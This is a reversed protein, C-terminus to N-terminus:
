LALPLSGRSIPLLLPIVMEEASDWSKYFMMRMLSSGSVEVHGVAEYLFPRDQIHM